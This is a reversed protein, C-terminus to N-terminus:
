RPQFPLQIFQNLLSRPQLLLRFPPSCLSYNLFNVIYPQRLLLHSIKLNLKLLDFSTIILKLISRIDLMYKIQPVVIDFLDASQSLFVLGSRELYFLIFPLLFIIDM